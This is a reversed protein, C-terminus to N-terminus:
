RERRVAAARHRGAPTGDRGGEDGVPEAPRAEEGADGLPLLVEAEGVGPESEDEASQREARQEGAAGRTAGDGGDPAARDDDAGAQRETAQEPRRADRRRSRRQEGRQEGDAGGVRRHVDGHVRVAGGEFHAGTPRDQM